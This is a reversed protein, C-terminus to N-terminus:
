SRKKEPTETFLCITTPAISSDQGPSCEPPSQLGYLLHAETVPARQTFSEKLMGLQPRPRFNKTHVRTLCKFAM